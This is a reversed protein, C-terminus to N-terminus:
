ERQREMKKEANCVRLIKNEQCSKRTRLGGAKLVGLARLLASILTEHRRATTDNHNKKKEADGDMEPVVQGVQGGTASRRNWEDEADTNM